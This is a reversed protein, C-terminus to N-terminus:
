PLACPKACHTETASGDGAIGIVVVYGVGRQLRPGRWSQMAGAFRYTASLEPPEGEPPLNVSVTEGAEIKAWWSKSGGVFIKFDELAPSGGPARFTVRVSVDDRHVCGVASLLLAAVTLRRLTRLTVRRRV